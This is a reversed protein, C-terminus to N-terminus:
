IFSPPSRSSSFPCQDSSTPLKNIVNALSKKRDNTEYMTPHYESLHVTEVTESKSDIISAHEAYADKTGTLWYTQM